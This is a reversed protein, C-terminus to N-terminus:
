TLLLFIVQVMVALQATITNASSATITWTMNKNNVQAEERGVYFSNPLLKSYEDFTYWSNMLIGTMPDATYDGLDDKATPNGSEVTATYLQIYPVVTEKNKYLTLRYTHVGDKLLWYSLQTESRNRELTSYTVGNIVVTKDDKIQITLPQTEKVTDSTDLHWTGTFYSDMPTVPDKPQEAYALALIANIASNYKKEELYNIITKYKQYLAAEPGSDPSAPTQGPDTVDPQIVTGGTSPTEEEKSGCACLGLLMCALLMTAILRKM